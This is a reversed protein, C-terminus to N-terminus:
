EYLKSIPFIRLTWYAGAKPGFKPNRDYHFLVTDKYFHINPYDASAFDSPIDGVFPRIAVHGTIPGPDLLGVVPLHSRFLTKAHTWTKGEDKSVAVSLRNREYGSEIEERSAQNWIIVLDGTTPIRRIMCPAYASALGSPEPVSWNEGGDDSTVRYLQGITTRSMMMIRGDKLEIAVPEDCAFAGLGSEHEWGFIFGSSKRWTKGEDDSLYCFTIDIEPYTTHGGVRRRKGDVMGYAGAGSRVKDSATFGTRVALILRGQRTQILTDVHPVGHTNYRNMRSPESWTEGEDASSSFSLTMKRYNDEDHGVNPIGEVRLLVVGLKGSNLRIISMIGMKPHARFTKPGEWTRGGDASTRAEAGRVALITGDNLTVFSPWGGCAGVSTFGGTLELSEESHAALSSLVLAAAVGCITSVQRTKM